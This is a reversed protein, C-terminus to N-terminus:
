NIEIAQQSKDANIHNLIGVAIAFAMKRQYEANRLRVSETPNSMFGCEVMVATSRAKHLIYIDDTSAKIVRNNEPQIMQKISDQISDALEKAEPVQPAYFVQAGKVGPAGYHNQHISVYLAGANVEMMKMRNHLDSVKKQRVTNASPDHISIDTERVMIVDFGLATMLDRLKLAIELNIDKEEAGDRSSSGGDVGGHGADIIVTVQSSAMALAPRLVTKVGFGASLVALIVAAATTLAVFIKRRTIVEFM